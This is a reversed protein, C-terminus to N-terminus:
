RGARAHAPGHALNAAEAQILRIKQVCLDLTAAMQEHVKAPDDGEVM